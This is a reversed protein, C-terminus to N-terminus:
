ASQIGKQIGYKGDNQFEDWESPHVDGKRELNACFKAESDVKKCYRYQMYRWWRDCRRLLKMGWFECEPLIEMQIWRAHGLAVSWIAGSNNDSVYEGNEFFSNMFREDERRKREDGQEQCRFFNASNTKLNNMDDRMRSWKNAWNSATNGKGPFLGDLVAATREDMKQMQTVAVDASWWETPPEDLKGYEGGISFAGMREDPAAYAAAILVSTLKM